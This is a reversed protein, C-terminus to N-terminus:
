ALDPHRGPQGRHLHRRRTSRPELGMSARRNSSPLCLASRPQRPLYPRRQRKKSTTCRAPTLHPTAALSRAIGTAPSSPVAFPAASSTPPPAPTWRCASRPSSTAPSAPACSRPWGAPAPSFTLPTGSCPRTCGPWHRQTCRLARTRLAPPGPAAPRGMRRTDGGRRARPQDGGARRGSGQGGGEQRSAARRRLRLRRSAPWSNPPWPPSHPGIWPAPSSRPSPRTARM